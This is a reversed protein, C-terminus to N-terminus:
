ALTHLGDIVLAGVRDAESTFTGVIERPQLGAQSGLNSSVIDTDPEVLWQATWPQSKCIQHIPLSVM